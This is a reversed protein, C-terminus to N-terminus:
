FLPQQAFEDELILRSKGWRKPKPTYPKLPKKEFVGGWPAFYEPHERRLKTLPTM